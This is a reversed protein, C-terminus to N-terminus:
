SNSIPPRYAVRRNYTGIWAEHELKLSCVVETVLADDIAKPDGHSFANRREQVRQLHKRIDDFGLESLDAWYTANFLVRYLRDVRSGISAYRQLADAALGNPMNRMSARLLRDIRTEFYSWFLIVIIARPSPQETQSLTPVYDAETISRKWQQELIRLYYWDEFRGEAGRHAPGSLVFQMGERLQVMEKDAILRHGSHLVELLICHMDNGPEIAAAKIETGLATDHQFQISKDNVFITVSGADNSKRVTTERVYRTAMTYPDHPLTIGCVPCSGELRRIGQCGTCLIYGTWLSAWSKGKPLEDFWSM